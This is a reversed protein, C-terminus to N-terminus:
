TRNRGFQSAQRHRFADIRRAGETWGSFKESFVVTDSSIVNINDKLAAQLDTREQIGETGFQTSKVAAIQKDRVAIAAHNGGTPQDSRQAPLPKADTLSLKAWMVSAATHTM